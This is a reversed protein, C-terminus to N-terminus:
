HERGDCCYKNNSRGAKIILYAIFSHYNLDEQQEVGGEQKKQPQQRNEETERVRVVQSALHHYATQNPPQNDRPMSFGVAHDTMMRHHRDERILLPVVRLVKRWRKPHCRAGYEEQPDATVLTKNTYGFKVPINSEAIVEGTDADVLNTM